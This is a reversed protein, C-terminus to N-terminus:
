ARRCAPRAVPTCCCSTTAVVHGRPACRTPARPSWPNTVANGMASRRGHRRGRRVVRRVKALRDRIGNLLDPSPRMSSWPRPMPTTSCTSSREGPRLPLQHEGAGSVGQVCGGAGGHVGPLQVPLLGGEGSSRPGRRPSRRGISNARRDFQRWTVSRDGQTQCPKDPVRAAVAEWIDALNWEPAAAAEGATIESM